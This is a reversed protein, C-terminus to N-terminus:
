VGERERRESRSQLALIILAVAVIVLTLVTAIASGYGVQSKDFFSLYSYYSPVLTSSEPGGRTLVYIPGFVKLAAVTCTLTVV